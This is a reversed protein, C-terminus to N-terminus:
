SQMIRYPRIPKGTRASEQIALAVALSNAGDRADVLPAEQGRVVRCFHALQAELPDVASVPIELRQLPHDWGQRKADAYRWLEMKPFALSAASGMFHYCNEHAAEIIRQAQDLTEAVPKEILAHVSERACIEAVQAHQTNPTAIIAGSPREKAILAQTSRYFPVGLADARAPLRPDTDCIGVLVCDEHAQILEAHRSGIVGAGIVALRLPEIQNLGM